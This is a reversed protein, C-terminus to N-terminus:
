SRWFTFQPLHSGTALRLAFFSLWCMSPAWPRDLRDVVRSLAPLRRIAAVGGAGAMFYYAPFIFRDAKRDSFSFLVILVWSAAAAFLLGAAAGHDLTAQAPETREAPREAERALHGGSRAQRTRKRAAAVLVVCAAMAVLSWPFAYWALRTTYWTANYALRGPSGAAVAEPNLRPGTYFALFSEDTVHLYAQEYVLTLVPAVLLVLALGIWPTLRSPRFPGADQTWARTALWVACVIPVVFGLVGKVLLAWAFAVATLWAWRLRVRSRETALLGLLVGALVAYEQNARVRFVFAIPMLQVIWGLARAERARVLRVALVQMLVISAAQFVGNVAYAAQAAPYGARGLLAPLLFIGIPHERFPGSFGWQGWWEPAIWQALPESALRAAIGAYVRSDPDGSTFRVAAIVVFSLTLAAVWSLVAVARDSPLPFLHHPDPSAAETV